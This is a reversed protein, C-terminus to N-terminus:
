RQATYTVFALFQEDRLIQFPRLRLLRVQKFVRSFPRRYEMSLRVGVCCAHVHCIGM